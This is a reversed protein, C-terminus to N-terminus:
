FGVYNLWGYWLFMDGSMGAVAASTPELSKLISLDVFHALGALGM